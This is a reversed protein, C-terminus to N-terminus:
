VPHYTEMEEIRCSRIRNNVISDILTPTMQVEKLKLGLKMKSNGSRFSFASFDLKKLSHGEAQLPTRQKVGGDNSLNLGGNVISPESSLLSRLVTSLPSLGNISL